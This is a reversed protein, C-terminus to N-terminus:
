NPDLVSRDEGSESDSGSSDDTTEKQGGGNFLSWIGKLAFGIVGLILLVSGYAISLTWQITTMKFGNALQQISYFEALLGIFIIIAIKAFYKGEILGVIIMVSIFLAVSRIVIAAATFPYLNLLVPSTLFAVPNGVTISVPGALKDILYALLFAVVAVGLWVEKSIKM